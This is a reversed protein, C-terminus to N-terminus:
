ANKAKKLISTLFSNSDVSNATATRLTTATKGALKNFVSVVFAEAQTSETSELQDAKAKKALATEVAAAIAKTQDGTRKKSPSNKNNGSRQAKSVKVAARGEPTMRWAKLEGRQAHSLKEYEALTHFRLDVGTTAGKGSKMASASAVSVKDEFSVLSIEAGRKSGKVQKKSVPDAPLLTAVTDEFNECLGNPTKDQKVSAM